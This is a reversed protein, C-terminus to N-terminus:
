DESKIIIKIALRLAQIAKPSLDPMTYIPIDKQKAYELENTADSLGMIHGFCILLNCEEIIKHNIYSIQEKTLLSDQYAKHIFLEHDAPVYLYSKPLGDMKEWDILYAQLEIGINIYNQLLRYFNGEDDRNTPYLLYINFTTNLATDKM